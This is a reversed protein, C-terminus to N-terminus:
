PCGGSVAHLEAWRVRMIAQLREDLGQPLPIEQGARYLTITQRLNDIVVRCTKCGVLHQRLARCLASETEGDLYDNISSLIEDCKM